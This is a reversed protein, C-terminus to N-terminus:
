SQPKDPEEGEVPPEAINMTAKRALDSKPYNKKARMGLAYFYATHMHGVLKTFKEFGQQGSVWNKTEISPLQEEDMGDSMERLRVLIKEISRTLDRVMSASLETFDGKKNTPDNM